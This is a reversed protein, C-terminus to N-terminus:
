LALVLAITPNDWYPRGSRATVVPPKETRLCPARKDKKGNLFRRVAMVVLLPVFPANSPVDPM